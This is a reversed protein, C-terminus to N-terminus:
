WLGIDAPNGATKWVKVCYKAWIEVGEPEGATPTVALTLESLSTTNPCYPSIKMEIEATRPIMHPDKVKLNM